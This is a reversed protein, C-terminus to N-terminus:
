SEEIINSTTEEISRFGTVKVGVLGKGSSYVIHPINIYRLEVYDVGSKIALNVAREAIILADIVQRDSTLTCDLPDGFSGTFLRQQLVVVKRHPTYSTEVIHDAHETCAIAPHEGQEVWELLSEKWDDAYPIHMIHTLSESRHPRSGWDSNLCDPKINYHYIRGNKDQAVYRPNEVGRAKCAALISESLEIQEKTPISM